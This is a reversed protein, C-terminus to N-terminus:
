VCQANRRRCLQMETSSYTCVDKRQPVLKKTGVSQDAQAYTRLRSPLVVVLLMDVPLIM